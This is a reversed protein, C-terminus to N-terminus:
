NRHFGGWFTHVLAYFLITPVENIQADIIDGRYVRKFPNRSRETNGVENGEKNLFEGKGSM